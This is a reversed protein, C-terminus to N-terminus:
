ISCDLLFELNAVSTLTLSLLPLVFRKAATILVGQQIKLM